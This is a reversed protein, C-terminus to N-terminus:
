LGWASAPRKALYETFESEFDSVYQLVRAPVFTDMAKKWAEAGKNNPNKIVNTFIGGIVLDYVSLNDGCVFKGHILQKEFTLTWKHFPSNEAAMEAWAEAKKDDPAAWIKPMEKSWFDEEANCKTSEGYYALLPDEPLM